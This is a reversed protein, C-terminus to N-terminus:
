TSKVAFLKCHAVTSLLLVLILLIRVKRRYAIRSRVSIRRSMHVRNRVLWCDQVVFALLIGLRLAIQLLNLIRLVVVLDKQIRCSRLTIVHSRLFHHCTTKARRLAHWEVTRRRLLRGDDPLAHSPLPRHSVVSLGSFYGYTRVMLGGVRGLDHLTLHVIGVVVRDHVSRRLVLLPLLLLLHRVLGHLTVRRLLDINKPVPTNRVLVVRKKFLGCIERALRILLHVILSPM